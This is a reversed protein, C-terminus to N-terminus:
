WLIELSARQEYQPLTILYESELAEAEIRRGNFRVQKPPHASSFRVYSQSSSGKDLVLTLSNAAENVERLPANASTLSFGPHKFSVYQLTRDSTVFGTLAHDGRLNFEQSDAHLVLGPSPSDITFRAKSRTLLQFEIGDSTRRVFPMRSSVYVVRPTHAGHASLSVNLHHKGATLNPLIVLRGSFADHPQGDITVSDIFSTTNEIRIGMGGVFGATTARPLDSLDLAMQLGDAKETWSYKWGAMARLKEVVELPEPTYIPYTAFKSKLAEYMAINSANAIRPPKAVGGPQQEDKDHRLPMSSISYDHWMQNYIYGHGIQRFLHDFLAEQYSTIQATTYSWTPDYFWQYDPSPTDDLVVFDKDKGTFWTMVGFGIPTDQEFGHTMMLQFRRAVEEYDSNIITDGPNIFLDVKGIHAGNSAMNSEIEQISGDLEQKYKESGMRSEIRHYKSHSGIQGGLDELQQGLEALDKWGARAGASSVLCYLPVVGTERAVDFLFKFTQKQYDLNQTNDADLRVIVSLNANSFQPAPFAGHVDGYAAWQLARVLVNVVENAFFGQPADNRFISTAGAFTTADSILVLRNRETERYSVFPFSEHANTSTLLVHGGSSFQQIELGKALSQSLYQSPQFPRTIFHHNDQVRIRFNPDGKVGSGSIGLLTWLAAPVQAKGNKTYAGLPGDIVVSGGKKLYSALVTRLQNVTDPEISTCEAFVLTTYPAVQEGAVLDELFLTDYPLGALNTIGVWGHGSMQTVDWQRDFSAKSMIVAIRPNEVTESLLSLPVVLFALVGIVLSSRTRM